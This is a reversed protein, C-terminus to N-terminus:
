DPLTEDIYAELASYSDGEFRTFRLGIRVEDEGVERVAMLEGWARIKARRGDGLGVRLRVGIDRPAGDATSPQGDPAVQHATPKDCLLQAGTLSLDLILAPYVSDDTDLIEASLEEEVRPFDRREQEM